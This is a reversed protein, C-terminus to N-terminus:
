KKEYVPKGGLYTALVQTKMIATEPVRMIDQDLIVFDAYKGPVLSGLSNEEFAAFAPWITMSLL